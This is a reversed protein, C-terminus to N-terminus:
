KKDNSTESFSLIIKIDGLYEYSFVILITTRITRILSSAPLIHLQKSPDEPLTAISVAVRHSPLSHSNWRVLRNKLVSLSFSEHFHFPKSVFGFLTSVFCKETERLSKALKACGSLGKSSIRPCAETFQCTPEEIFQLFKASTTVDRWRTLYSPFILRVKLTYNIISLKMMAQIINPSLLPYLLGWFDSNPGLRKKKLLIIWLSKWVHYDM